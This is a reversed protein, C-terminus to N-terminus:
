GIQEPAQQEEPAAEAPLEQPIQEEPVPQAPPEEGEPVIAESPTAAELQVPVPETGPLYYCIVPTGKDIYGYLEKAVSVPLNICGHSGNTKYIDGGFQRRWTADHMGINNNFPMWYSVPTRYTEGVLTANRQKYTLGYVGPPTANGNAANGSVFDSELIKKGDQYFFLHQATLNIEVYTDGYDPGDYSAATQHYVPVREGSEGQRIMEALEKTEQETDMWWGYDGRDITVETGYSTQFTRPRYITNYAKRLETVYEEVKTEDVAIDWGDVEIWDLVTEGDLIEKKSGFTYVIELDAYNQLKEYLEMLRPDGRTVAPVVYCQEEDLDISDRLEEVAARVAKITKQRNLKNGRTESMLEFGNEESYDTIYADTPASAFDPDFGKLNGVAELFADEDYSLLDQTSHKKEQRLFWLWANQSKLIKQVPELSTYGLGFDKGRLEEELVAGDSQRELVTLSYGQVQAELEEVTMGSVDVEDIVSGRVFHYQYYFVGGGYVAAVCLVPICLALAWILIQKGRGKKEPEKTDMPEEAQGKEQTRDTEQKM